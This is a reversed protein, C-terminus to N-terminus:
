PNTKENICKLLQEKNKFTTKNDADINKYKTYYLLKIGNEECLKKKKLDRQIQKDFNEQLRKEDNKFGFNTPKYHQEGQCEIGIHYQPLYFDLHQRQLWNFRKSQEFYINNKTFYEEIEKELKSQNCKPCGQRLTIHAYPTQWFEGHIPCIIKIKTDINKYEVDDYIYKDGHVEQAKKIVKELPFSKTKSIYENACKPCKHGHLVADPTTIFDGHQPCTVIIKQKQTKISENKSFDYTPYKELMRKIIADTETKDHRSEWAKRIGCKPCGRGILLKCPSAEWIHGCIKCKCKIKTNYNKFDDKSIEVNKNGVKEFREFFYNRQKELKKCQVCGNGHLLVKPTQRFEGHTPCIICVKTNTNIYEVKSYDYKDGYIEKLKKIFDETTYRVGGNCKPCGGHQNIHRNPTTKFDGHIPCTVILESYANIYITKSYDYKIGHIKRAEEIFQETTKRQNM